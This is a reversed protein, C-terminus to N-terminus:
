LVDCGTDLSIVHIIICLCRVVTVVSSMKTAPVNTEHAHARVCVCVCV